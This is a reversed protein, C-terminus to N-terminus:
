VSIGVTELGADISVFQMSDEKTNQSEKKKVFNRHKQGSFTSAHVSKSISQERALYGAFMSCSLLVSTSGVSTKM